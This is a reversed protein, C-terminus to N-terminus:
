ITTLSTIELNTLLPFVGLTILQHSLGVADVFQGAPHIADIVDLTAVMSGNIWFDVNNNNYKIAIKFRGANTNSISTGYSNGNLDCNFLISTSQFTVSIADAFLTDAFALQLQSGQRSNIVIDMFFVGDNAGAIGLLNTNTMTPTTRTVVSSTTKIYSTSFARGSTGKEVQAGWLYISKESGATVTYSQTRTASASPVFSLQFGSSGTSTSVAVATLKIWGNGISTIGFGTIASGKTGVELRDLDFNIYANAGFGASWFVLQVYRQFNTAPLKVYCSMAYGSLNVPSFAGTLEHIHHSGTGVAETLISGNTTGMPSFAANDIVTTLGKDWYAINFTESWKTLNTRTPEMLITPCTTFYSYDLLPEQSIANEFFGSSATRLGGSTRTTIMDGATTNPVVSFLATTGVGPQNFGYATPTNILYASKLLGKSNLGKLINEMCVESYIFGGLSLVRQNFNKILTTIYSAGINAWGIGIGMKM